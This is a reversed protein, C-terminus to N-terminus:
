SDDSFDYRMVGCRPAYLALVREQDHRGMADIWARTAAAVQEKAASDGGGTTACAALVAILALVAYKAMAPLQVPMVSRGTKDLSGTQARRVSREYWSMTLLLELKM